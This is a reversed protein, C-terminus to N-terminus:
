WEEEFDNWRDLAERPPLDTVVRAFLSRDEGTPDFAMDIRVPADPGFHKALYGRAEELLPILFPYEELRATVEDEDSFEYTARVRDLATPTTKPLAM